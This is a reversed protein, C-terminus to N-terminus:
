VPEALDDALTPAREDVGDSKPNRGSGIRDPLLLDDLQDAVATVVAVGDLAHLILQPRRRHHNVRYLQRVLRRRLESLYCRLRVAGIRPGGVEGLELFRDALLLSTHNKETERAWVVMALSLDTM